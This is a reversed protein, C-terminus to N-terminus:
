PSIYAITCSLIGIVVAAALVVRAIKGSRLAIIAIVALIFGKLLAPNTAVIGIVITLVIFGLFSFSNKKSKCEKRKNKNEPFQAVSRQRTIAPTAM